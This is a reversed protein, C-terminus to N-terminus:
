RFGISAFRLSPYSSLRFASRCDGPLLFWSGGRLVRDGGANGKAPGSPDCSPSAGYGKEDYYDACWQWVNGHMDYLGWANPAKRGTAHPLGDSNAWYWAALGLDKETAGCNYPTTTGARCAYEWQAETPLDVTWKADKARAVLTGLAESGPPQALMSELALCFAKADDWSVQQVPLDAGQFKSPNRNLLKEYQAQTVEYTGLYFPRSIKVHHVPRANAIEGDGMDFEGPRILRLDLKVGGLDLDLSEPLALLEAKAKLGDSGAAEQETGRPRAILLLAVVLVAAAVGCAVYCLTRTKGTM